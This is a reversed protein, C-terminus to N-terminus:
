IKKVEEKRPLLFYLFLGLLIIAFIVLEMIAFEQAQM